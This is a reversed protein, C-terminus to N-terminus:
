RSMAAGEGVVVFPAWISPHAAWEHKPDSALARMARRLAEARSLGPNARLEAFTTSTLLTAAYSNVQWHSVLLARAGAYFFARALGSLADADERGGDSQAAATNCASLVVWDADLKLSAIESATLLGDDMESPTVPPTFVLAPEARGFALRAMEGSLLGHTAFHLVRYRSLDMRKITTETMAKGTVTRRLASVGLSEAVCKLEHATDPLPCLGRVAEVNAQGNRFFWALSQIGAILRHTLAATSGPRSTQPCRDPVIIPKCHSGGTLVPNGFGAYPETARSRRAQTRLASLSSVAPLVTIAQRTGLWEPRAAQVGPKPMETVLVNLPVQSLTNSPVVLLSKGAILDEVDGFLKKFLRHARADDFPPWDQDSATQGTLEICFQRRAAQDKKRQQEAKTRTPWDRPDTWATRDLGCRLVQVERALEGAQMDVQVLRDAAPTIVWAYVDPLLDFPQPLEIFRVLVEDHRLLARTAEFSTEDEGILHRTRDGASALRELASARAEVLSDIESRVASQRTREALPLRFLMRRKAIIRTELDQIQRVIISKAQDGAAARFSMQRLARDAASRQLQGVARFLLQKSTRDSTATAVKALAALYLARFRNEEFAPAVLDEIRQGPQMLTDIAAVLYPQADEARGARVMVVGLAAETKAQVTANTPAVRQALLIVERATAIAEGHRNLLSLLFARQGRLLLGLNTQDLPTGAVFPIMKDINDLATQANGEAAQILGLNNIATGILAPQAQSLSQAAKIAGGLAAKADTNRGLMRRTEGLGILAAAQLKIYVDDNRRRAIAVATELLRSAEHFQGTVRFLDALNVLDRAYFRSDAGAQSRTVAAAQRHATIAPEYQGLDQLISAKIGITASYELSERGHASEVRRLQEEAASLAEELAGSEQLQLIRKQNAELWAPQQQRTTSRGQPLERLKAGEELGRRFADLPDQALAPTASFHIFIAFFSIRVSFWSM